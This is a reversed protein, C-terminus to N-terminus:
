AHAYDWYRSRAESAVPGVGYERDDLRVVPMIKNANGTSFVEDADRVDELTLVTERVEHGADRLLKMTRLRTIGALFTGNAIPTAVVGFKGWLTFDRDLLIPFPNKVNGSIKEWYEKNQKGTVGVLEVACGPRSLAAAVQRAEEMVNESQKQDPSLFM